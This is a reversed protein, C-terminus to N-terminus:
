ECPGQQAVSVVVITERSFIALIRDHTDLKRLTVHLTLFLGKCAFLSFDSLDGYDHLRIPTNELKVRENCCDSIFLKQLCRLDLHSPM